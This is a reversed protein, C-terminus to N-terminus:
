VCRSTYLLCTGSTPFYAHAYDTMSSSFSFEINSANGTVQQLSQPILDDWAQVALVFLPRLSSNSDRICM